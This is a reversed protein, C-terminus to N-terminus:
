RRVTDIQRWETTNRYSVFERDEYITVEKYRTRTAYSWESQPVSRYQRVCVWGLCPDWVPVDVWAWSTVCTRVPIQEEGDAVVVTRVPVRKIEIVQQPVDIKIYQPPNSPVGSMPTQGLAATGGLGVLLAVSLLLLKKM